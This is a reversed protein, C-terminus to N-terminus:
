QCVNIRACLNYFIIVDPYHEIGCPKKWNWEGMANEKERDREGKRKRAKYKNVENKVRQM